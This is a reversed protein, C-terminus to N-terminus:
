TEGSGNFEEKSNNVTVDLGGKGLRVRLTEEPSTQSYNKIIVNKDNYVLSFGRNLIALPNISDLSSALLRLHAKKERIITDYRAIMKEEMRSLKNRYDLYRKAPSLLILKERLTRRKENFIRLRDDIYQAMEDHMEDLMQRKHSIKETGSIYFDRKLSSIERRMNDHKHKLTDAMVSVSDGLFAQIDAIDRVAIEAAASPTPARRDSVFDIITFDTEHGVASIVPISSGAVAYALRESNFPWLDEMSGGGRGIIIVDVPFEDNFYQIGKMLTEDANEGQVAAPYLFKRIYPARRKLVNYIDRIVAGTESTIIGITMPYPPLPKKREESFLGEEELKKKIRLFERYLEGEGSSAMSEVIIQYNGQPEYVAIRGKAVVKVGDSFDGRLKTRANFMVARILAKQDKLSFYLHGSSHLKYNSIEGAISVSGPFHHQLADRIETSIESVSYIKDNNM